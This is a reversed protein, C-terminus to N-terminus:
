RVHLGGISERRKTRDKRRSESTTRGDDDSAHATSGAGAGTSRIESVTDM